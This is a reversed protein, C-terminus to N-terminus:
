RGSGRPRWACMSTTPFLCASGRGPPLGQVFGTQANYMSWAGGMELQAVTRAPLKLERVSAVMGDVCVRTRSKSNIGVLKTQCDFTRVTNVIGVNHGTIVALAGGVDPDCRVISWM